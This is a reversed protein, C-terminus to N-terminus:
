RTLEDYCADQAYEACAESWPTIFAGCYKHALEHILLSALEDSGLDCGNRKCLNIAEGPQRWTVHIWSVPNCSSRCILVSVDGRAGKELFWDKCKGRQVAANAIRAGAAANPCDGCSKSDVMLQPPSLPPQPPVITPGGIGGQGPAMGLPDFRKQADGQVFCYLNIGGKEGIPDRNPWNGRGSATKYACTRSGPANELPQSPRRSKRGPLNRRFGRACTEFPSTLSAPLCPVSGCAAAFLPRAALPFFRSPTTEVM